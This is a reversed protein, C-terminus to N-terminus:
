GATPGTATAAGDRAPRRVFVQMDPVDGPDGIVEIVKEVFDNPDCDLAMLPAGIADWDLFRFEVAEVRGIRLVAEVFLRFRFLSSRIIKYHTERTILCHLATFFDCSSYLPADVLAFPLLLPGPVRKGYEDPDIGLL